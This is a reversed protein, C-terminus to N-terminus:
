KLTMQKATKLLSYLGIVIGFISLIIIGIPSINLLTDVGWGIAAFLAVTAFLQWGLHTYPAIQRLAESM